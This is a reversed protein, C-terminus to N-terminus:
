CCPTTDCFPIYALVEKKHVFFFCFFSQVRLNARGSESNDPKSSRLPAALAAGDDPRASTTVCARLPAFTKQKKKEFFFNKSRFSEKM